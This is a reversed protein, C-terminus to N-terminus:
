KNLLTYDPMPSDEDIEVDSNNMNWLTLAAEWNTGSIKKYSPPSNLFAILSKIQKSNLIDEKGDYIFYEPKDLRVCSHFEKGRTTSDMIHMHPIKGPDDTWFRIDLDGVKGLRAMELLSSHENFIKM